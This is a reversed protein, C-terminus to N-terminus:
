ITNSSKWNHTQNSLYGIPSHIYLIDGLLKMLVGFFSDRLIESGMNLHLSSQLRYIWDLRSPFERVTQGVGGCAPVKNPFMEGVTHLQQASIVM